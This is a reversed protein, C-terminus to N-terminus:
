LATNGTVLTTSDSRSRQTQGGGGDSCRSEGGAEEEEAGGEAPRRDFVCDKSPAEFDFVPLNNLMLIIFIPHVVEIM